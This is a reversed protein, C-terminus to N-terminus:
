QKNKHIGAARTEVQKCPLLLVCISFTRDPEPLSSDWELDFNGAQIGAEGRPLRKELFLDYAFFEHLM